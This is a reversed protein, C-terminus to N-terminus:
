RAPSFPTRAGLARAANQLSDTVAPYGHERMGSEYGAIATRLDLEGKEVATLQRALLAADSLATNGGRGGIPTMAHIADGLLTVNTTPWEPVPLVARISLPFTATLDARELLRLLDPHWGALMDLALRHLTASDARWIAEEPVPFDEVRALQLWMLYDAVSDLAVDPALEAVAEAPPRRTQFVGMALTRFDPTHVGTFTNDLQDPFDARIADMPTKGTIARVGTDHIQAQPLLRRRVVSNIGDAAVLVDGTATRGNGFQARVGTGTDEFSVLEHSFRVSDGLRALLIQRLTLRNVASPARPSTDGARTEGVRIQNFEHDFFVALPTKPTRTSTAVYLEFLDAPLCEALAAHGAADVHIRYGQPRHNPSPDREYVTVGIGAQRLGQALALGGLGAGAILVNLSM